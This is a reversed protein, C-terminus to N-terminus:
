NIGTQQLILHALQAKSALGERKSALCNGYNRETLRPDCIKEHYWIKLDPDVARMVHITQVGLFISVIDTEIRNLKQQIRPRFEAYDSGYFSAITYDHEDFQGVNKHVDFSDSTRANRSRPKKAASTGKKEPMLSVIKPNFQVFPVPFFVQTGRITNMRVRNLFDLEMEVWPNVMLYLSERGFHALVEDMLKYSGFLHDPMRIVEVSKKHSKPIFYQKQVLTVDHWLPVAATEDLSNSLTLLLRTNDSGELCVRVFSSIFKRASVIDWRTVPLVLIIETSETVYPVPVLEAKSLPRVLHVRKIVEESSTSAYVLDLVYDMGRTPDFRRYGNLLRSFKLEPLKGTFYEKSFELVNEVDTKDIGILEKVNEKAHDTFIVDETFYDWRFMEFRNVPSWAKPLGAPWSPGEPTELSLNHIGEQISATLASIQDLELLCFHKHLLHFEAQDALPYVTIASNFSDQKGMLALTSEVDSGEELEWSKFTKGQFQALKRM